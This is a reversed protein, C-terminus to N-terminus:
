RRAKREHAARDHGARHKKKTRQRHKKKHKAKKPKQVANGPGQFNASAPASVGPPPPPPPKCAEGLCLPPTPPPEPFGGGERADYVDYNTNTDWGSLPSRTSLFVDRGSSSADVLYSEDGSEGSSILSICGGSTPDFSPSQAACTGNGQREFEYVDRRQNQDAASLADRSEFFLKSGDDSLYRPGELPNSWAPLETPGAPRTGTPNCSACTLEEAVADYLFAQPCLPSGELKNENSPQCGTGSAIANDYGSLAKSEVSLFALHHGDPSLRATRSAPASDWDTADLDSLAAIFRLGEGQRYLYLNNAGKLAGGALAGNALFYAYDGDGSAGIVGEIEPAVAGPTLNSLTREEVDYRYLQGAAGADKTLKGPASFFARSGDPTATWFTGQGAPGKGANAGTEKADLEITENGEIRVLLPKEAGTIKGGYTWFVRSGDESVANAVPGQNM